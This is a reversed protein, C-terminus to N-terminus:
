CEEDPRHKIFHILFVCFGFRHKLSQQLKTIFGGGGFRHWVMGCKQLNEQLIWANTKKGRGFFIMANVAAPTAATSIPTSTTPFKVVSLVVALIAARIM